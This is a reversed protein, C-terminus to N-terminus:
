QGALVRAEACGPLHVDVSAVDSWAGGDKEVTYVVQDLRGAVVSAAVGKVEVTTGDSLIVLEPIELTLRIEPKM